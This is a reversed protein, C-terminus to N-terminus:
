RGKLTFRIENVVVDGGKERMQKLIEAKHFNALESMLPANSVEVTLKGGRLSVVSTFQRAGEPAVAEWLEDAKRLRATKNLGRRRIEEKLVDGLRVFGLDKDDAGKPKV